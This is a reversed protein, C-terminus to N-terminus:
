YYLFPSFLREKMNHVLLERDFKLDIRAIMESYITGVSLPHCDKRYLVSFIKNYTYLIHMAQQHM